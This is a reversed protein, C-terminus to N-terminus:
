MPLAAGMREAAADVEADIRLRTGDSPAITVSRRQPRAEADMATTRYRPLVEALVVKMEAIALAMGICRRAGGGFPLYEYPTFGRTSLFREPLFRDPEPFTDARQHALYICAAVTVDAPLRWGHVKAPAQLRRAVLPVVPRIRLVERCVADLYAGGSPTDALEEELRSRVDPSREIWHFAWAVATATTEYGTVLLTLLQDTLAEDGLTRGEDTRARLLMSLVDPGTESPGTRRAAVEGAVLQRIQAFSARFGRWAENEVPDDLRAILALNFKSDNLFLQLREGLEELRARDSIGFVVRLIVGISIGQMWEQICVVHGPRWSRTAEAVVERMSRAYDLVRAGHFAPMTLRRQAQHEREELLLLSGSGLLPKLVSNGAGAHYTRVDGAFIQKIADPESFLVYRGYDEGFDVTFTAGYDTRCEDLFTYPHFLWSLGQKATRPPGPPLMGNKM